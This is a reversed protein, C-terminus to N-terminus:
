AIPAPSESERDDPLEDEEENASRDKETGAIKPCSIGVKPLEVPDKETVTRPFDSPRSPADCAATIPTEILEEDTQIDSEAM